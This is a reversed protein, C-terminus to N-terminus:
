GSRNLSAMSDMAYAAAGILGAKRGLESFVIETDNSIDRNSFANIAQQISAGIFPAAEAVVGGIVIRGPNFVQILSVMAKGLWYGADSFLSIAFQDGLNAADIVTSIDIGGSKGRVLDRIMTPKGKRIGEQAQQVIATASVLTEVCGQKGCRCLIGRDTVPMHGFEGSYGSKGFYLKGNMIIGMGVGWDVQLVLVNKVHQALGFQKEALARLKSDHNIFVPLGFLEGVEKSLNTIEPFYTKNIGKMQDFLGPQEIGVALVKGKDIGAKGLILELQDRIRSFIHFDSQMSVPIISPNGIEQNNSNFVSLITRSINMTIGVVYFLDEYLGYMNPRRGGSSDGRGLEKVIGDEILEGLLSNVKPTSLRLLKSLEANSLGGRFYLKRIIQKKQHIKKSRVLNSHTGNHKFLKEM